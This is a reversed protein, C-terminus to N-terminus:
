IPRLLYDYVYHLQHYQGDELFHYKRKWIWLKWTWRKKIFPIKITFTIGKGRITEKQLPIMSYHVIPNGNVLTTYLHSNTIVRVEEYNEKGYTRYYNPYPPSPDNLNDLDTPGSFHDAASQIFSYHRNWRKLADYSKEDPERSTLVPQVMGTPSLWPVCGASAYAFEHVGAPPPPPRLCLPSGPLFWCVFDNKLKAVLIDLKQDLYYGVARQPPIGMDWVKENILWGIDHFQSVALLTLWGPKALYRNPFHLRRDSNGGQGDISLVGDDFGQHFLHKGVIQYFLSHKTPNPECIGYSSPHGGAVTIVDMPTDQIFNVGKLYCAPNIPNNWLNCLKEFLEGGYIFHPITMDLSQSTYLWPLDSLQPAHPCGHEDQERATFSQVLSGLGPITSALLIGPAYSSGGFAGQLAIHLDVRENIYSIDGLKLGMLSYGGTLKAVSMAVNSFLSGASHSIIVFGNQGFKEDPRPDGCNVVGKNERMARGIQALIAHVAFIGSQTVPHAVVLFRNKYTTTGPVHQGTELDYHLYEKIHDSWYKNAGSKWYGDNEYFSDREAPWRPLPKGGQANREIQECLPPLRYGHVFVIDRGSFPSVGSPDPPPGKPPLSDCPVPLAGLSFLTDLLNGIHDKLTEELDLFSRTMEGISDFGISDLYNSISDYVIFNIVSDPIDGGISACTDPCNPNAYFTDIGLDAGCRYYIDSVSGMFRDISDEIVPPCDPDLLDPYIINGLSDMDVLYCPISDNVEQLCIDDIDAFSLQVPENNEVSIALRDFNYNAKWRHFTYTTWEDCARIKGSVDIIAINANPKPHEGGSPLTNNFAVARLKVYDVPSGASVRVCLSLEYVKGSEIRRPSLEQYIASGTTKNGYLQVYVTDDCGSDAVVVPHGYGAEWDSVHGPSPMSGSDAGNIFGWNRIFNSDCCTPGCEVMMVYELPCPYSDYVSPGVWLWYVGAQVCKTITATDCAIVQRYDIQIYTSCNETGANLLFTQLPFEAVCKFTLTTSQQVVLRFWDTDRYNLGNYLYTGSTGCITTNCNINQFVFPSSNCGGNYNDVYNDYCNPEGELIGGPPCVVDCEQYSEVLIVYNGCSDNYGDVVIYYTHGAYVSLGYIASKYGDDGCADDNCAYYPSSPCVDEYVFVKTDYFSNCLIINIQQNTPPSYSYVVDPATGGPYPCTEDYDNVNDCTYGTANFPLSSIATASACTEGGEQRLASPPIEHQPPQYGAVKAPRVAATSM